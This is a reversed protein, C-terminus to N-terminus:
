KKLIEMANKKTIVVFEEKKSPLEYELDLLIKNLIDRLGRAGEQSKKAESAIFKIADETIELNSEHTRFYAQKEKLISNEPKVIIEALQEETLEKLMSRVSFRGILEPIFGFMILDEVNPSSTETEEKKKLEQRGFGIEKRKDLRDNIIDYLSKKSSDGAFSGGAIFLINTTDIEIIRDDPKNHNTHLRYQNGEIMTLLPQQVGRGRVDRGWSESVAIKDIEDLYIIGKNTDKKEREAVFYLNKLVETATDGVYGEETLLSCDGKVFPLDLIKAMTSALLTKGCGTPGMLLINDKAWGPNETNVRKHHQYLANSLIKKTHDQGIVYKDLEEKIDQPTVKGSGLKEKLLSESKKLRYVPTIQTESLGLQGDMNKSIESELPYKEEFKIKLSNLESSYKPSLKLENEILSIMKANEYNLQMLRNIIAMRHESDGFNNVQESSLLAVLSDPNNWFKERKKLIAYIPKTKSDESGPMCKYLMSGFCNTLFSCDEIGVECTKLISNYANMEDKLSLHLRYMSYHMEKSFPFRKIGEEGIILANSMMGVDENNLEPSCLYQIYRTYNHPSPWYAINQEHLSLVRSILAAKKTPIKEKYILGKLSNMLYKISTEDNSIGLAMSFEESSKEFEQKSHYEVGAAYHEGFNNDQLNLSEKRLQEFSESVLIQLKKTDVMGKYAFIILSNLYIVM